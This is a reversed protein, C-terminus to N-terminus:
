DVSGPKFTQDQAGAIVVVPSASEDRLALRWRDAFLWNKDNTLKGAFFGM